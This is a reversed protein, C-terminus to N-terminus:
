THTTWTQTPSFFIEDATLAFGVQRIVYDTTVPQTVVIDGTTSAYVAAGITLAPFNADARVIGHLLITCANGDTGAVVVVGLIGRADGTAAAAVSIDVAEWRSDDKDLTVIDGFAQSYGSLGTVTIGSYAGDASGVPDLGVSAGESLLQTGVLTNGADTRALNADSVATNLQALTFSGLVTANGTSTVHGTLNANTTVNGATLGSATGTLNTAVGSSPTGLVGGNVVPAGASGVAVALATAVNAGLGAVGTSIPLGTCSALNGSTPTGLAPTTLAPSTFINAVTMKKSTGQASDTTDSIDVLPLLDGTAPAAGLSTLDSIKKDAM